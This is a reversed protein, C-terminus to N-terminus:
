SGTTTFSPAEGGVFETNSNREKVYSSYTNAGDVITVQQGVKMESPLVINVTFTAGVDSTYTTTSPVVDVVSKIKKLWFTNFYKLEIVTAM